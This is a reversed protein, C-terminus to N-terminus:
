MGGESDERKEKRRKSGHEEGDVEEEKRRLDNEVEYM